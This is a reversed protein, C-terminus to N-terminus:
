PELFAIQELIRIFDPYVEGWNEARSSFIFVASAHRGPLPLVLLYQRAKMSEHTIDIKAMIGLSGAVRHEGVSLVTVGALDPNNKSSAIFNDVFTRAALLGEQNEFAPDDLPALRIMVQSGENDVKISALHIAHPREIEFRDPISLRLGAMESCYFESGAPPTQNACEEGAMGVFIAICGHLLIGMGAGWLFCKLRSRALYLLSALLAAPVTQVIAVMLVQWISSLYGGFFAGISQLLLVIFAGGAALVFRLWWPLPRSFDPKTREAEFRLESLLHDQSEAYNPELQRLEALQMALELERKKSEWYKTHHRASVVFPFGLYVIACILLV